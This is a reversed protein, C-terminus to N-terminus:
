LEAQHSGLAGTLRSESEHAVSVMFYYITYEKLGSLKHHNTPLFLFCVDLEACGLGWEVGAWHTM